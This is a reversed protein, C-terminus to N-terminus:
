LVDGIQLRLERMRSYSRTGLMKREEDNLYQLLSQYKEMCVLRRKQEGQLAYADVLVRLLVAQFLPSHQVGAGGQEMKDNLGVLTGVAQQPFDRMQVEALLVTSLMKLPLFKEDDDAIVAQVAQLYDEGGGGQKRAADALLLLCVAALRNIATTNAGDAERTRMAKIKEYVVAASEYSPLLPASPLQVSLKFYIDLLPLGMMETLLLLDITSVAPPPAASIAAPLLRQCLRQLAGQVAASDLANESALVPVEIIDVDGLVKRARRRLAPLFPFDLHVNLMVCCDAAALKGMPVAPSATHMYMLVPTGETEESCIEISPLPQASKQLFATVAAALKATPKQLMEVLPVFRLVESM